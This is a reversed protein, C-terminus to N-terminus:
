AEDPNSEFLVCGFKSSTVFYGGYCEIDYVGAGPDQDPGQFSIAPNKCEGCKVNVRVDSLSSSPPIWWKCNECISPKM